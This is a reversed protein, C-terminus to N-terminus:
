SWLGFLGNSVFCTGVPASDPSFVRLPLGKLVPLTKRFHYGAAILLRQATDFLVLRAIRRPPWADRRQSFLQRESSPVGLLQAASATAFLPTHRSASLSFSISFSLSLSSAPSFLSPPRSPSDACREVSGVVKSRQREVGRVLISPFFAAAPVGGSASSAVWLAVSQESM